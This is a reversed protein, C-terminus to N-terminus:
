YERVSWRQQTENRRAIISELYTEMDMGTYKESEYEIKQHCPNCALVVCYLDIVNRRKRTHAFGLGNNFWCGNLDLECVTIDSEYFQKKLEKRVREWEKTKKGKKIM